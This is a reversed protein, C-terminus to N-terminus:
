REFFSYFKSQFTKVSKKAIYHFQAGVMEYKWEFEKQVVIGHKGPWATLSIALPFYHFPILLRLTAQSKRVTDFTCIWCLQFSVQNITCYLFVSFNASLFRACETVATLSNHHVSQEGKPQCHMQETHLQLTFCCWSKELFQDQCKLQQPAGM